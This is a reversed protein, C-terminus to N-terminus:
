ALRDKVYSVISSTTSLRDVHRDPIKFGFRREVALLLDLSDLSDLGYESFPRNYDDIVAADAPLNGMILSIIEEDGIAM